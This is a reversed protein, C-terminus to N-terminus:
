SRRLRRWAGPSLGIARTFTRTFHSQSAFGCALAIENLSRASVELLAKAKDIRREILWRHPSQGTTERFARAFHRASLNCATALDTVSVEGDLRSDLLEKARRTQWPALGGRRILPPLRREGYATALHTVLARSVLDAYLATTEASGAALAPRLSSLLHHVVPDSMGVGLQHRLDGIRPCGADDALDDLARRTLYFSVYHFPGAYESMLKMRLDVIGFNGAQFNTPQLWRGEAAMAGRPRNRLHLTVVYADDRPLTGSLVLDDEVSEFESVLLTAKGLMKTMPQARDDRRFARDFPHSTVRTTRSSM